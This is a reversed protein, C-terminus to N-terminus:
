TTTALFDISAACEKKLEEIIEDIELALIVGEEDLGTTNSQADPITPDLIIGLIGRRAMTMAQSHIQSPPNSYVINHSDMEQLNKTIAQRYDRSFFKSDFISVGELPHRLTYEYVQLLSDEYRKLFAFYLHRGYFGVGSIVRNSVQKNQILTTGCPNICSLRTFCQYSFGLLNMTESESRSGAADLISRFSAGIERSVSDDIKESVLDIRAIQIEVHESIRAIEEELRLRRRSGIDGWNRVISIGNSVISSVMAVDVM